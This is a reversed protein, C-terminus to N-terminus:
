LDWDTLADQLAISLDIGPERQLRQVLSAMVEAQLGYPRAEYLAQGVLDVIETLNEDKAM